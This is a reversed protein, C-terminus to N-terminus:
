ILILILILWFLLAGGNAVIELYCGQATVVGGDVFAGGGTRSGLLTGDLAYVNFTMNVDVPDEIDTIDTILYHTGFKRVYATDGSITDLTRLTQNTTAGIINLATNNYTINRQYNLLINEAM